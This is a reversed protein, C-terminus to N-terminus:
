EEEPGEHRRRPHDKGKDKRWINQLTEVTVLFVKFHNEFFLLM